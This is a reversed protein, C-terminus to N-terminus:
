QITNINTVFRPDTMGSWISAGGNEPLLSIWFQVTELFTSRTNQSLSSTICVSYKKCPLVTLANPYKSINFRTLRAIWFLCRPINVITKQLDCVASKFWNLHFTNGWGGYEGSKAGLSKWLNKLRRLHWKWYKPINEFNPPLTRCYPYWCNRWM